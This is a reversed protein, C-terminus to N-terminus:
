ELIEPKEAIVVHGNPVKSGKLKHGKPADMAETLEDDSVPDVEDGEANFERVFAKPLWGSPKAGPTRAGKGPSSSHQIRGSSTPRRPAPQSVTAVTCKMAAAIAQELAEPGQGHSEQKAWALLRERYGTMAMLTDTGLNPAVGTAVDALCTEIAPCSQLGDDGKAAVVFHKIGLLRYKEPLQKSSATSAAAAQTAGAGARSPPRFQQRGASSVPRSGASSPPRMGASSPPRMGGSAPRSAGPPGAAKRACHAAVSGVADDLAALVWAAGFEPWSQGGVAGSKTNPKSRPIGVRGRELMNALQKMPLSADRMELADEWWAEGVQGVLEQLRRLVQKGEVTGAAATADYAALWADILSQVIEFCASTFSRSPMLRAPLAALVRGVVLTQLQLQEEEASRGHM